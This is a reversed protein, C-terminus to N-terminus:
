VNFGTLHPVEDSFDEYDECYEGNVVRQLPEDGRSLSNLLGTAVSASYNNLVNLVRLSQVFSLDWHAYFENRYIPRNSKFVTAVATFADYVEQRPNDQLEKLLNIVIHLMINIPQKLKMLYELSVFPTQLTFAHRAQEFLRKDANDKLLDSSLMLFIPYVALLVKHHENHMAPRPEQPIANGFFTLSNDEVLKENKPSAQVKPHFYLARLEHIQSIIGSKNPLNAELAIHSIQEFWHFDGRYCCYSLLDGICTFKSYMYEDNEFGEEESCIYRAKLHSMTAEYGAQIMKNRNEEDVTFSTTSVNNVNIVISQSSYKRLKLRDQEWGSAPDDVGTLVRYGWNMFFHEKYVREVMRDIATRETGNDFQVALVKLNNGYESELLTSHDDFFAETPFNTLIGGDNHEDGDLVTSRYVIPFSASIKVAESVEFDPSHKLSFYRTKGLRKNTATVVLEQGLGCDPVTQRIAELTAFTIKGQPYPINYKSVIQNLKYTIAYDLATKLSHPDSMGNMDIDFHVLHEQKFNQFFETIENATYGLYCLLAMIAGASSGAFKTPHIQAENLAKWFGVHGYIKAGGGCYVINDINPRKEKVLIEHTKSYYEIQVTDDQYLSVLHNGKVVSSKTKSAEAAGPIIWSWLRVYWPQHALYRQMSRYDYMQALREQMNSVYVSHPHPNKCIPEFDLAQIDKHILQDVLQETIFVRKTNGLPDKQSDNPDHYKTDNGPVLFQDFGILIGHKGHCMEVGVLQYNLSINLDAIKWYESYRKNIWSKIIGWWNLFAEATFGRYENVTAGRFHARTKDKQHPELLWQTFLKRKEESLRTFDFMINESDFLYSALSIKNDPPLGNIQLRGLQATIIIKKLLDLNKPYKTDSELLQSIVHQPTM